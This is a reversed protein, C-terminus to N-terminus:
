VNEKEKSGVELSWPPSPECRELIFEKFAEIKKSHISKVAHVLHFFREGFHLHPFVQVLEGSKIADVAYMTPVSGIGMGAKTMRFVSGIDNSYFKPETIISFKAAGNSLLWGNHHNYAILDHEELDELRTPLGRKKVYDPSACLIIRGEGIPKAILNPDNGTGVRFAFDYREEVLDVVRNDLNLEIAIQPHMQSFDHLAQLLFPSDFSLPATLRLTGSLHRKSDHVLQEAEDASEIMDRCHQYYRWGIDTPVVRRTTRILLQVGLRQELQRVKRSVTGKPIGLREAAKTYNGQSIVAEFIALENLDM